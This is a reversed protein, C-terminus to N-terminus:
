FFTILNPQHTPKLLTIIWRSYDCDREYVDGVKRELNDIAESISFKNNMDLLLILNPAIAGISVRWELLMLLFLLLRRFPSIAELLYLSYLFSELITSLNFVILEFSNKHMGPAMEDLTMLVLSMM